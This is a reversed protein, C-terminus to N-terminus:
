ARLRGGEADIFNPSCIEVEIEEGRLPDTARLTEGTREDARVLFGLGIWQQLTPSFAASTIIGQDNAATAAAHRPVLHAGARLRQKRNVAKLGTLRPRDPDLLAPRGALVRGIFDKKSSFMRGLGLDNVTTRGDIEPGAIHGKEIRMVGLAEIGYPAIGHPEGAKMLLRVLADGYDAPLGIEYALEGSFSIRYLRAPIGLVTVNATHMYPFADNGIDFNKDLVAALVDRARPGAVSYQAWQDTVSVFQVDLESWLVQHCYQMHQFVRGANATTTTMFYRDDALRATTGDDFVFGDERLMVGYRARGVPLTSFTNIYLRDLFAAADAGQIDIKGLTSVDCFGVGSRVTEVERNVADLWSRDGPWPFYQARLWAGTEVFVAGLEDAWQHSSTLRAPRFNKGRHTGALAGIAVPTYPARYTTTGVEPIPRGTLQSMLALGNVNSQKGQDTGMGLTTYRKLHEVSRFGEREALAIDAATVDNQLDVFASKPYGDVQWLPSIAYSEDAAAAPVEIPVSRFGLNDAAERGAVAGEDLCRALEFTGRAAGVCAVSVPMSGPVFASIAENWEPRRGRHCTLHISPNWGGSVGLVDVDIRQTGSSSRVAITRLSARGTTAVVIGGLIIRTRPLAAELNSAVRPRCDIVAAVEIGARDLEIASRWGDDNNTFIAARRGAAVAFRNAYSRVASAAMIGPRDNGRFVIPREYAGAALITRKAVIRWLRQRPEHPEPAVRHDAVRELAGYTEGDYAGFVTTRPLLRVHACAQLEDAVSRAWAHGAAGAVESKRGLLQGGFEFDEDCLIVRAGRRAATLAAMLGSPGAGIVLVDCFAWAQEYFDPDPLESLRGLGAARRILPEYIREWFASPWKFTKYYFGAGIFPSLLSNVSWIDFRLSPWRNQSEAFLGDFFEVTTAKTNPELRDGQRLHVLANPEDSGATVIGRPRHYKFSRGVLRIGAALLASALTDGAFGTLRRGDFTGQRIRSRDILGGTTLRCPQDAFRAKSSEAKM